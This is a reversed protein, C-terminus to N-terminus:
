NGNSDRAYSAGNGWSLYKGTRVKKLMDIYKKILTIELIMGRIMEIITWNTTGFVRISLRM